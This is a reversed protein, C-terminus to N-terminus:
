LLNLVREKTIKKTKEKMILPSLGNKEVIKQAIPTFKYKKLEYEISDRLSQPIICYFIKIWNDEGNKDEKVTINLFKNGYRIKCTEIKLCDTEQIIRITFTGFSTIYVYKNEKEKKLLIDFASLINKKFNNLNTIKYNM